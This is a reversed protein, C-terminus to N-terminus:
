SYVTIAQLYVMSSILIATNKIGWCTRRKLAEGMVAQHQKEIGGSFM